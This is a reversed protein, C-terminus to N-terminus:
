AKEAIPTMAIGQKELKAQSISLEDKTPTGSMSWLLLLDYVIKVGGAIFFPYSRLEPNAYLLGALYPGTSAGVSRVVNTVASAASREDADVVGAVYANNRTPVDMQSISHYRLCLM